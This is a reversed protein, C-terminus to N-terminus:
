AQLLKVHQPWLGVNLMLEDLALEQHNKWQLDIQVTHNDEILQLGANM